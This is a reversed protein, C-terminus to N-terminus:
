TLAGRCCPASCTTASLMAITTVDDESLAWMLMNTGDSGFRAAVGAPATPVAQSTTVSVAPSPPSENGTTDVASVAVFYNTGLSLGRLLVNTGNVQVPSPSGEIAVIANDDWPPGAAGARCHVRYGALDPESNTHWSVWIRSQGATVSVNAPTAPPTNDGLNIGVQGYADHM